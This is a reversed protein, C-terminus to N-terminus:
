CLHSRSAAVLLRYCPHAYLNSRMSWSSLQPSSEGSIYKHQAAGQQPQVASPTPGDVIVLANGGEYQVFHATAQGGEFNSTSPTYQDHHPPRQGPYAGGLKKKTNHQGTIPDTVVQNPKKECYGGHHRNMLSVETSSICGM